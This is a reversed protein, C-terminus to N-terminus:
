SNRLGEEYRRRKVVEVCVATGNGNSLIAVSGGAAAVRERIIKLGFHDSGVADVDFGVGNDEVRMSLLSSDNQIRVRVSSAHAHRLTNSLCENLIRTLQLSVYMPVVVPTQGQIELETAIGWNREFLSLSEEVGTVLGDTKELSVRLSFMEDRLIRMTEGATLELRDLDARALEVNGEDFAAVAAAANVSLAGLLSSVNEHIETSLMKRENLVELEGAKKTDYLRQVLAGITRGILILFACDEESWTTKIRYVASLMGVVREGAQLPISVAGMIGSKLASEPIVDELHPHEYDMVIPNRSEMMWQMRGITSLRYGDWQPSSLGDVHYACKVFRTGDTSILHLHAQNCKLVRAVTDCVRQYVDRLQSSWAFAESIEVLCACRSKWSVDALVRTPEQSRMRAHVTRVHADFQKALDDPATKGTSVNVWPAASASAPSAASSFAPSAVSASSLSARDESADSADGDSTRAFLARLVIGGGHRNTGLYIVGEDVDRNAWLNTAVECFVRGDVACLLPGGEKMGCVPVEVEAVNRKDISM